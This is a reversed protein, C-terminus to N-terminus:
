QRDEIEARIRDLYSADATLPEAAPETAAAPRQRRWRRLTFVMLTSAALLLVFPGLWAVLNFGDGTPAIRIQEGQPHNAVYWDIVEQGSMGGNVMEAIEQQMKTARGCACDHVSQPHCSCDCLITEAALQYDSPTAAAVPTILAAALLLVVCSREHSRM